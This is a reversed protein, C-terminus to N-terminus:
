KILGVVGECIGCKGVYYPNGHNDRIKQCNDITNFAKIGWSFRIKDDMNCYPCHITNNNNYDIFNTIFIGCKFTWHNPKM